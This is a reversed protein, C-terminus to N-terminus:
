HPQTHTSHENKLVRTDKLFLCEVCLRVGAGGKGPGLGVRSENAGATRGRGGTFKAAGRGRFHRDELLLLEAVQSVLSLEWSHANFGSLCAKRHVFEQTLIHLKLIKGLGGGQVGQLPEEPAPAPLHEGGRVGQM